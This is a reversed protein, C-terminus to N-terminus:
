TFTKIAAGSGVCAIVQNLLHQFFEVADQQHFTSFEPHGRGIVSKFYAPRVAHALVKLDEAM